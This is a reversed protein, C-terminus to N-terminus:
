NKEYDVSSATYLYQHNALDTRMTPAFFSDALVFESALEWYFPLQKNDYYGMVLTPNKGNMNQAFLFGDMAGNNYSTKYVGTSDEPAKTQFQKLPFPTFHPTFQNTNYEVDRYS